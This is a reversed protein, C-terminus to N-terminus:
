QGPYKKEMRERRARDVQHGAENPNEIHWEPFAALDEVLETIGDRLELPKLFSTPVAEAGM